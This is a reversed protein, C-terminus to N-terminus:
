QLSISIQFRVRGDSQLTPETGTGSSHRCVAPVEVSLHFLPWEAAPRLCMLSGRWPPKIEATCGIVAGEHPTPRLPPDIRDADAANDPVSNRFIHLCKVHCKAEIRRSVVRHGQHDREVVYPFYKLLVFYGPCSGSRPQVGNLAARSPRAPRAASRSEM